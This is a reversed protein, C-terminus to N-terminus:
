DLGVTVISRNPFRRMVEDADGEFWWCQFGWVVAGSDLVIKPNSSVSTHLRAVREAMPTALSEARKRAASRFAELVQVLTAEGNELRRAFFGTVNLPHNDSDRICSEYM